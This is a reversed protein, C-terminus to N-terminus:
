SVYIFYEPRTNLLYMCRKSSINIIHISIGYVPYVYVLKFRVVPLSLCVHERM